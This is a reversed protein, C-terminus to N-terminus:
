VLLEDMRLATAAVDHGDDVGLGLELHALLHHQRRRRPPQMEEIWGAAEAEGLTALSASERPSDRSSDLRRRVECEPRTRSRNSASTYRVPANKSGRRWTGKAIPKAMM